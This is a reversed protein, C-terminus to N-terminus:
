FTANEQSQQEPMSRRKRRDTIQWDKITTLFPLMSPLATNRFRYNSGIFESGSTLFIFPFEDHIIRHINHYIDKRKEPATIRRGEELLEDVTKNNYSSLNVDGDKSHWFRYAYDPDLGTTIMALATQFSAKELKPGDMFVLKIDVGVRMLQARIAVALRELSDTINPITLSFELPKGNKDLIGDGDTDKWGAEELLKKAMEANYPNPQVNTNYAWSNTNFPGTCLKGYGKLQNKNISERDIAYDLAKRVRIDSFMPDDLNFIVAYYFAGPTPYVRFARRGSAFILDSSTLSFAIDIRGKAIAKIASERDPYAKFTLSDLVPRDKHFYKENAELIITDDEAWDILKFPGSGIPKHNFQTEHLDSNELLHKPAIARCLRYILPAFPYKLFVRFIYDGDTEIRDIMSYRDAIPSMNEPDMIANYTFEVDHSTLPYDDHFRVDDRLYFTWMLGDQSVEWNKAVDPVPTGSEDFKILDSFILNMLNISITESTLIPNIVDPKSSHGIIMSGGPYDSKKGAPLIEIENRQHRIARPLNKEVLKILKKGRELVQKDDCTKMGESLLIKLAELDEPETKKLIDDYDEQLKYGGDRFRISFGANSLTNLYRYIGRESVDCLKSLDKASLNPYERIYELMKFLKESKTMRGNREKLPM